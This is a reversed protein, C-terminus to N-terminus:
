CHWVGGFIKIIKKEATTSEFQIGYKSAGGVSGKVRPGFGGSATSYIKKLTVYVLIM